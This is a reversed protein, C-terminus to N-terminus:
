VREPLTEAMMSLMKATAGPANWGHSVMILATIVTISRVVLTAGVLSGPGPQEGTEFVQEGCTRQEIAQFRFEGTQRIAEAFQDWPVPELGMGLMQLNADKMWSFREEEARPQEAEARAQAWTSSWQYPAVSEPMAAPGVHGEQLHFEEKERPESLADAGDVVTVGSSMVVADVEPRFDEDETVPTSSNCFIDHVFHRIGRERIEEAEAIRAAEAAEFAEEAEESNLGYVEARVGFSHLHEHDAWEETQTITETNPISKDDEQETDPPLEDFWDTPCYMTGKVGRTALTDAIEDHLLGSHAKV